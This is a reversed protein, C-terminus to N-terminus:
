RAPQRDPTESAARRELWGELRRLPPLLRAWLNPRAEGGTRELRALAAERRLAELRESGNRYTWQMDERM